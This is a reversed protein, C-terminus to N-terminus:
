SKRRPQVKLMFMILIILYVILVIFVILLFLDSKPAMGIIVLLPAGLLIGYSSGALLNNAAPTEYNPDLERLLMVGSSITGTLMGYMSLLGEHYYSPYIKKCLWQLFILTVWGGLVAMVLFPLWLGSLDRIEIAAIGAVIMYDFAFGSIRSLLYNNPYQRNMWRAKTFWNFSQRFLMAVLAGIIFNFGWIVPSITASLGPAIATLLSTIGMSVLFTILYVFVVMAIQMSLRDVSQSVPIENDSQFDEVTMVEAKEQISKIDIKKQKQLVNIYIVGVICACLFGAAAISLGFSQGGEFGLQEYTVGINNAQGPGQGYGMPLLIGAAKFLGPTITYALGATIIIGLIGQMLYTSVILAGSKPGDLSTADSKHNKEPIRLSLAIFGIAITHYTISDLFIAELSIVGFIRLLLTIFGAMVATPMLSKRIFGVKRRLVNAVLMIASLIGFQIMGNWLATNSASFDM